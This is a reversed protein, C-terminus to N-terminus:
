ADSNTEGLLDNIYPMDLAHADIHEDRLRALIKGYNHAQDILAEDGDTARTGHVIFPPLYHMGCLSATREFPVLFERM